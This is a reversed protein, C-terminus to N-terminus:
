KYSINRLMKIATPKCSYTKWYVMKKSNCNILNNGCDVALLLCGGILVVGRILVPIELMMAAAHQWGERGVRGGKIAHPSRNQMVAILKWVVAMPQRVGDLKWSVARIDARSRM